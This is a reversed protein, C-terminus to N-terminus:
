LVPKEGTIIEFIEAYDASVEEILWNPLIIPYGGKEEKIKSMWNRIKQKDRSVIKGEVYYACLDWFRSSDPTLVEDMLTLNGDKDFGFEFKTDALIIGQKELIKEATIFIKLSVNRIKEALELSIQDSMEEFTLPDDTETKETPTFIPKELRDGDKLGEPLKIGCYEGTKKYEKFASGTIHRRVIAEVPIQKLSKVVVSRGDFEFLEDTSVCQVVKFETLHNAVIDTLQKELWWTSLQSLIKGKGPMQTTLKVNMGSIRDSRRLILLGNELSFVDGVKGTHVLEKTMIKRTM